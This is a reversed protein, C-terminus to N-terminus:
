EPHIISSYYDDKTIVSLHNCSEYLNMLYNDTRGLQAGFVDFTQCLLQQKVVEPMEHIEEKEGNAADKLSGFDKDAGLLNAADQSLPVGPSESAGFFLIVYATLIMWICESSDSRKRVDGVHWADGVDVLVKNEPDADRLAEDQDISHMIEGSASQIKALIADLDKPQEPEVMPEAPEKAEVVQDNNVQDDEPCPNAKARQFVM